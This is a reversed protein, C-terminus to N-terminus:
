YGDSQDVMGHHYRSMLAPFTAFLSLLHLKCKCKRACSGTDQRRMRSGQSGLSCADYGSTLNLQSDSVNGGNDINSGLGTENSTSESASRVRLKLGHVHRDPTSPVDPGTQTGAALATVSLFLFLLNQMISSRAPRGRYAIPLLLPGYLYLPCTV